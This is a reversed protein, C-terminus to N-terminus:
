IEKASAKYLGFNSIAPTNTAGKINIRIKSCQVPDIRFIRKYGITTGKAITKWASDKYAEIDFESIRQGFRIPEQLLIRDFTKTSNIEIEISATKQDDDTAWYTSDITDTINGPLFKATRGRYNTATAKANQAINEKFTEDIIARFEKLEAVDQSPFVGETNPPVNLLFITNRGISKYYLDVLQQATKIKDDDEKKWSWSPRDPVDCQGIIWNKGDPDGKALYPFISKGTEIKLSDATVTSWCTEGAVGEENGIWRIDPGFFNFILAKPQLEYILNNIEKWPYYTDRNIIRRENAGGYYGNWFAAGDFWMENIEGYNTLLERLQNKFFNIYEPKGYDKHHADWPSYYLGAKIGFKHCADTFEKVIDGKGKKYPSERVTYDSFKSPWICFGDHHKVTLILEKMGAEKAVKVWQETDVGKPNFTSAPENGRWKAKETGKVTAPFTFLNYHIFGIFEMSQYAIQKESPVVANSKIDADINICSCASLFVLSLSAIIKM